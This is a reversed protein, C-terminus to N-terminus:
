LRICSDGLLRGCSSEYLRGKSMADALDQQLSRKSLIEGPDGCSRRSHVQVPDRVSGEGCSGNIRSNAM